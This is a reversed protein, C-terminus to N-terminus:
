TKYCSLSVPRSSYRLSPRSMADLSESSANAISYVTYHLYVYLRGKCERSGSVPQYDFVAYEITVYDHLTPKHTGLAISSQLKRLLM